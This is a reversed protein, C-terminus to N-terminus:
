LENVRPVTDPTSAFDQVPSASEAQPVAPKRSLLREWAPAAPSPTATKRKQVMRHALIQSDVLDGCNLCRWALSACRGTEYRDSYADVIMFGLCRECTM